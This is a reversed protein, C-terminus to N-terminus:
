FKSSPSFSFQNKWEIILGFCDIYRFSIDDYKWTMEDM